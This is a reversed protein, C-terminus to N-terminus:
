QPCVDASRGSAGERRKGVGLKHAFATPEIKLRASTCGLSEAEAAAAGAVAEGSCLLRPALGEVGPDSHALGKSLLRCSSRTGWPQRSGADQGVEPRAETARRDSGGAVHGRLVGPSAPGERRLAM